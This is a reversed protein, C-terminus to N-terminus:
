QVKVKMYQNTTTRAWAYQKLIFVSIVLYYGVYFRDAVVPQLIFRIIITVLFAFAFLSEISTNKENNSKSFYALLFGSFVFIMLSSYYLGTMLQSKVLSFYGSFSFPRKTDYYPNLHTAFDPYYFVGWGFRHAQWSILLYSAIVAVSFSIYKWLPMGTKTKEIYFIVLSILAVPIVNDLRAFISLLLFFAALVQNRLEVYCYIGTTLLLASFLDPTSLKATELMFPSLMFLTSFIFAPIQPLYKGVWSYLLLSILFFSIVSPLATAKPLSIGWKYFVYCIRTYLPKVVYFPLQQNFAAPSAFVSRRYASGSDVLKSFVSEPVSQKAITYVEKHIKEINSNSDHQLIVAIYPLM